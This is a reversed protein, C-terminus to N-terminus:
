GGEGGRGGGGGNDEDLAGRAGRREGHGGSHTTVEYIALSGQASAGVVVCERVGGDERERGAGHLAKGDEHPLPVNALVCELVDLVMVGEIRCVCEVEVEVERGGVGGGRGGGGRDVRLMVLRACGQDAEDEGLSGGQGGGGGGGRACGGGKLAGALNLEGTPGEGVVSIGPRKHIGGGDRAM